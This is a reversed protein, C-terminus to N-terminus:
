GYLGELEPYRKFLNSKLEVETFDKLDKILSEVKWLEPEPLNNGKSDAGIFVKDPRAARILKPFSDHHFDMIPEITVYTPLIEIKRLADARLYPHPARSYKSTISIRNTEMTTGLMSNEPFKDLWDHFRKPNKTQFMYLNSPSSNRAKELIREIFGDWVRRHFLDMQGCVFIQKNKGWSKKLESEYLRYYGSYKKKCAGWRKRLAFSSCYSCYDCFGGLPNVTTVGDYMNGAM